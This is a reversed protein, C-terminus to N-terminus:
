DGKFPEIWFTACDATNGSERFCEGLDSFQREVLTLNPNIQFPQETAHHRIVQAHSNRM